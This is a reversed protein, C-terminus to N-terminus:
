LNNKFFDVTNLWAENFISGSINHGGTKYEKIEHYIQTSNLINMLGRSYEISVVNDDVAHNLQVAGSVGELYNTAPVQRWFAHAPNFEGYTDRLLQRKRQRETDDTPPRYSNDQIGFEQMDSYTYVAGAWISVAPIDRKAVFSRFIVNGGMSHGWLGIKEKNVFEANQLASYANLTDVVYDGSYYAGGADGESKDHGRLDIKFVVFGARALRDVYNVYNENTKYVSPPIYGHVFVIAPWGGAPSEGKPITLFGNIKLGDSDYNTLYSTYFGNESLKQMGGLHSSYSRNRLYPITMDEFLFPTPTPSAMIKKVKDGLSEIKNGESSKQSTYYFYLVASIVTVTVLVLIFVFGNRKTSFRM